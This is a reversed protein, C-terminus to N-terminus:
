IQFTTIADPNKYDYTGFSPYSIEKDDEQFSYVTGANVAMILANINQPNVEHYTIEGNRRVIKLM